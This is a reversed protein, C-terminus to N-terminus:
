RAWWWLQPPTVIGSHAARVQGDATIAVTTPLTSVPWDKRSATDLRLVSALPLGAEQAYARLADPKGDVAVYLVRVDPRWGAFSTLLPMEVRCPGCWTAWFNVIVPSGRLDALDVTSGDLAVLALPPAAAPLTPARLAGVAWMLAVIAGLTLGISRLVGGFRFRTPEMQPEDDGRVRFGDDSM